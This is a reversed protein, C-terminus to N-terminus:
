RCIVHCCCVMYMTFIAFLVLPNLKCSRRSKSKKKFLLFFDNFVLLYCIQLFFIHFIWGAALRM